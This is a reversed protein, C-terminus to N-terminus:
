GAADCGPIEKKLLRFRSVVVFGVEPLPVDMFKLIFSVWLEGQHKIIIAVFYDISLVIVCAAVNVLANEKQNLQPSVHKFLYKLVLFLEM